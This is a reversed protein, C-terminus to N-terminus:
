VIPVLIKKKSFCVSYLALAVFNVSIANRSWETMANIILGVQLLEEPAQSFMRLVVKRIMSYFFNQEM